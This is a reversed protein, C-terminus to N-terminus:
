HAIAAGRPVSRASHELERAISAAWADIETWKRFDGYPAKVGKVLAREVLSLREKRLAGSFMRHEVFNLSTALKAIEPPDTGEQDGLPGSSFLWIRRAALAPRVRKVFENAAKMWRGIYVASGIVVGDYGEIADVQNMPRLDVSVGVQNLGFAIREAVEQTSGHKSEYTVLVRTAM